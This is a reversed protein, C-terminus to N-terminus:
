KIYFDQQEAFGHWKQITYLIPIADKWQKTLKLDGKRPKRQYVYDSNEYFAQDSESFVWALPTRVSYDLAEGLEGLTRTAAIPNKFGQYAQELGGLGPIPIFTVLEKNTRDVQYLLYNRMKKLWPDLDDNDDGVFAASLLSQLILGTLIIGIEGTTRYVNYLKNTARQDASLDQGETFGYETKFGEGYKSFALNGKGIERGAYSMFKWFSTYRGELWGLNEDYYESRFRANFAPVVWKKFQATLKGLWHSQLVMRDEYAYNGHIQKNVERIKNRMDYRWNDTYKVEKGSKEVITDFGEKLRVTQEVSDFEFADYLSITENTKSNKITTDMLMAIGVKTQVNWEAGDQLMYGWETFREFATKDGVLLQRGSERIDAKNDMMRFLLTLAEYKNFAKDADYSNKGSHKTPYSLRNMMGPLVRKNYEIEARKYAEASFFRQGAAEILNNLRGLAYNNFNGFPNFAVYSLSAYKILQNAAEDMFGKNVGDTDYFVMKMYKKARRVIYADTNKVGTEVFNGMKDRIGTKVKKFLGPKNTYDRKEIVHLLANMTDETESMVEFNEAMGSFALLTAGLDLNVENARAGSQIKQLEGRLEALQEKYAEIKIENNNRKDQLAEIKDMVIKADAEKKINGVYFIPLQDTILQGNEDVNITKQSTTTTFMDKISNTNGKLRGYIKAFIGSKNKVDRAFRKRVLPVKGLMQDRYQPDLKTLLDNEFVEMYMEYFNKRALGLTSNDEMMAKYKQSRMDKRGTEQSSEERAEKFEPKVVSFGAELSVQGTYNGNKDRIAMYYDETTMFYKAKYKQYELESVGPKKVWFGFNNSRSVFTEYKDRVKKFEDTYRHYDGDAFQGDVVKEGRWFDSYEKKKKALEINFNLEKQNKPNDIYRMPIAGEYLGDRLDKITKHYQPGIKKVTRGTFEGNEDFELMFEYLKQKDKNPSIELLANALNVIRQQRSEIRDLIVQKKNKVIKDMLALLTDKATAVDMTQFQLMNMDEAKSVLEDLEVETFDRSSWKKVLGKVADIIATDLLGDSKKDSGALENIQVSLRDLLARQQKNLNQRPAKVLGKSYQLLRSMNMVYGIYEDSSFNADDKVYEIFKRTERVVDQMMRTAVRSMESFDGSELAIAIITTAQDIGELVQTKNQNLSINGKLREVVQRKDLLETRYDSLLGYVTDYEEQAVVAPDEAIDIDPDLEVDKIEVNGMQEMIADMNTKQSIDVNLPILQDIYFQQESSHMQYEEFVFSSETILGDKNRPAGKFEQSVLQGKENRTETINDIKVHMTFSPNSSIKFGMNQLMRKYMNVQMDHKGRKSLKDLGLAAAKSDGLTDLKNKYSYDKVSYKSSKLDVVRLSGDAEVMLLDIAGAIQANNDYVIVQPIIISGKRNERTTLDRLINQMTKYADNFEVPDTLITMKSQTEDVSLDLALGEVMNDLDNGLEKNLMTATELHDAMPKNSVARTSSTYKINPNTLNIYEHNSEELIVVDRGKPAAAFADVKGQMAGSQFFLQKIVEAQAPNATSLIYDYAKQKEPSLAYKVRSDMQDATIEFTLNEVNLMKAIDSMSTNPSIDSATMKIENTFKSTINSIIDRFWNLFEKVASLFTRSPQEVEQNFHKTLGQTVLEVNRHDENFGKKDSYSQNIEEVLGPFTEKAEQLLNDFLDQNDIKVADVFPHLMEEIAVMNDVRGDILFVQGNVYFSRVQDFSVNAKQTDDLTNYFKEAREASVLEVNLSPFTKSLQNIIFKVNNTEGIPKAQGMDEQLVSENFFVQVMGQDIAKYNLLETNLNNKELYTNIKSLSESVAINLPGAKEATVQQGPSAIAGEVANNIYFNNDYQFLLNNKELSSSLSSFFNKEGTKELAKSAKVYDVAQTLSPFQDSNNSQQWGLIVNDTAATTGFQRQLAKYGTTSRNICTAM